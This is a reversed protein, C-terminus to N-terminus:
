QFKISIKYAHAQKKKKYQIIIPKIGNQCDNMGENVFLNEIFDRKKQDMTITDKM